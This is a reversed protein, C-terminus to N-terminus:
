RDEGSKDDSRVGKLIKAILRESVPEPLEFTKSDTVIRITKRASDLIVSCTVCHALHAEIEQRIEAAVENDLYNSLEAMAEKCSYM